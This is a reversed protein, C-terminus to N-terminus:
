DFMSVAALLGGFIIERARGGMKGTTRALERETRANEM